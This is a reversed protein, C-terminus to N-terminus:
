SLKARYARMALPFFVVVLGAAWVLTVIVSHGVPTGDLLGRVSDAIATVPNIKEAWFQLASPLTDTRVFASSTFSLPMAITFGFMMVKEESGAVLGLLVNLWAMALTFVLLLALSALAGGIGGNLDFGIILGLVLMLAVAWVQKVMDALIRGILPVPRAIPLSRFRDYVGKAVDSHLGVATNLATFVSNQVILGALAYQLYEQPSGSMQGGFMFTFLLLFMVPQVSLDLLEMPNHKIQVLSRWAISAINRLNAALGHQRAPSPVTATLATM